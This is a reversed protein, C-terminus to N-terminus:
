LLFILAKVVRWEGGPKAMPVFCECVHDRLQVPKLVFETLVLEVNYMVECTRHSSREVSPYGRGTKNAGPQNWGM